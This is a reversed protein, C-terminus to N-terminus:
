DKNNAILLVLLLWQLNLHHHHEKPNQCLTSKWGSSADVLSDVHNNDQLFPFVLIHGASM